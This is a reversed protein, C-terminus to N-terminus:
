EVAFVLFHGSGMAPDLVRQDLVRSVIKAPENGCEQEIENLLPKLVNEGIFEVVYHPTYYSGTAKRDSQDAVLTFDGPEAKRTIHKDGLLNVSGVKLQAPSVPELSWELLGEYITGLERVRLTSYDVRV